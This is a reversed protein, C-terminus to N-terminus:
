KTDLYFAFEKIYYERLVNPTIEEEFELEM